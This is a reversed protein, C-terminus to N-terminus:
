KSILLELHSVHFAAALIRLKTTMDILSLCSNQLISFLSSPFCSFYFSDWNRGGRWGSVEGEDENKGGM